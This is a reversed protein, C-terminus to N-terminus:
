IAVAVSRISVVAVAAGDWRGERHSRSSVGSGIVVAIGVTRFVGCVSFFCVDKKALKVVRVGFFLVGMWGLM